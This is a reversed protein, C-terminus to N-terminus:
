LPQPRDGRVASVLMGLIALVMALRFSAEIADAIALPSGIAQERALVTTFIAGALGIGGVMGLHRATALIAAAIGREHAPAAGMLASNNPSTFLGTGLGVVGLALLVYDLPSAPGLRSLLFLGFALVGMGLTTPLRSGIRDSITGSWPAVLAMLLPQATLLLGAQGTSLGRDHILYFPLLFVVSFIGMYNLLASAVAVTFAPRRFLRLDVMPAPVRAEVIVFIGLLAAGGALLGLIPSSSWGWIHGRNLALVLAVLGVAFCAAGTVDLRQGRDAPHDDPISHMGLWLAFLGVPINLYFVPRWGAQQAIWGGLFPGVTLGLYTLTVQLGLAQGRQGAPFYRTLLAPANAFLAAAGMAQLMRLAILTPATSALSCLASGLIFVLLGAVYARRHGYLDGLRGWMLLSGAVVLLYITVVWEITAIDTAVAQQIAPLITAVTSEGLASMLSGLGVALLIRWKRELYLASARPPPTLVGLTAGPHPLQAKM